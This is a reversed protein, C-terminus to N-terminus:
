MESSESSVNDVESLHHMFLVFEALDISGSGDKDMVAILDRLTHDSPHRGAAQLGMKLEDHQIRGDKDVDLMTFVERYLEIQEDALGCEEQAATVADDMEQEEKM